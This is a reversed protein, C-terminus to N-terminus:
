EAGTRWEEFEVHTGRVEDVEIEKHKKL